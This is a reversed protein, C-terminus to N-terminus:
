FHNFTNFIFSFKFCYSLCAKGFGLVDGGLVRVSVALEAPEQAVLVFVVWILHSEAGFEDFECDLEEETSQAQDSDGEALVQYDALALQGEDLFEAHDQERLDLLM